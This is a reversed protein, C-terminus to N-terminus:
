SFFIIFVLRKLLRSKRRAVLKVAAPKIAAAQAGATV